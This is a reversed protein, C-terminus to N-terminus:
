LSLELLADKMRPAEALVEGDPNVIMSSGASVLGGQHGVADAKAVYVRNEIARVIPFAKNKREKYKSEKRSYYHSSLYFLVDIKNFKRPLSPDNQDRCILVGCNVGNIRFGQVNTGPSFYKKDYDTLTHKFYKKIRSGPMMILASNFTRGRWPLSTGIVIAVGSSDSADRLKVIEGTVNSEVIQRHNRIYGTLACEPFCLLDINRSSARRIYKLINASNKKIDSSIRMQVVGIRLRPM